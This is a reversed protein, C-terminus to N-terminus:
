KETGFTEAHDVIEDEPYFDLEKKYVCCESKGEEHNIWPPWTFHALSDLSFLLKLSFLPTFPQFSGKEAQKASTVNYLVFLCVWVEM